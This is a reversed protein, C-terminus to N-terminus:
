LEIEFTTDWLDAILIFPVSLLESSHSRGHCDM